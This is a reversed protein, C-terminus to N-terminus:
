DKLYKWKLNMLWSGLIFGWFFQGGHGAAHQLARRAVRGLVAWRVGQLALGGWVGTLMWLVATISASLWRRASRQAASPDAATDKTSAPASAPKQRTQTTANRGGSGSGGGGSSDPKKDGAAPQVTKDVVVFRVASAEDAESDVSSILDYMKRTTDSDSSDSVAANNRALLGRSCPRSGGRKPTASCGSLRSPCLAPGAFHLAAHPLPLM